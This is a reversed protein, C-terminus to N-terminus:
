MPGHILFRIGGHPPVVREMLMLEAVMMEADAEGPRRQAPFARRLVRRGGFRPTSPDSAGEAAWAARRGAQRM